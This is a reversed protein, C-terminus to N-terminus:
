RGAGALRSASGGPMQAAMEGLRAFAFFLQDRKAPAPAIRLGNWAVFLHPWTEVVGMEFERAVGAFDIVEAFAVGPKPAANHEVARAIRLEIRRAARALAVARDLPLLWEFEDELVVTFPYADDSLNQWAQLRLQGGADCIATDLFIARPTTIKVSMIIAV